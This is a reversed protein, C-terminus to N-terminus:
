DAGPTAERYFQEFLEAHNPHRVVHFVPQRGEEVYALLGAHRLDTLVFKLDRQDIASMGASPVDFAWGLTHLPASEDNESGDDIALMRTIEFGNYRDGQLRKLHHAVFLALGITSREAAMARAGCRVGFTAALDPLMVIRDGSDVGPPTGLPASVFSLQSSPLVSWGPRGQYMAARRTYEDPSQRYVELLRMAQRVRFYYTPSFDVRSLKDLAQYVEPRFYPTNTFFLEAYSLEAGSMVGTVESVRIRRGFYASLLAAMRGAGMHYEAVAFDLKGGLWARRNSVRKAMAMIARAPVYRDDITRYVPQKVTTVVRRRNKGSGVWRTKKVTTTGIRIRRGATLGLERASARTLQAIGAPGTPSKATPDGYSEVYIMGALVMPDVDHERAAAEIHAWIEPGFIRGPAALAEPFRLLAFSMSAELRESRVAIQELSLGARGAGLTGDFSDAFATTATTIGVLMMGAVLQKM